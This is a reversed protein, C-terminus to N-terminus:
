VLQRRGSHDLGLAEKVARQIGEHAEAVMVKKAYEVQSKTTFDSPDAARRCYPCFDENQNTLGTGLKVKFFGSSCDRNLCERATRGDGDKPLSVSMQYQDPGTRRIRHPGGPRFLEYSVLRSQVGLSQHDLSTGTGEVRVDIRRRTRRKM